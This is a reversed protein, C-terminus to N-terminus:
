TGGTDLVLDLVFLLGAEAMHSVRQSLEEVLERIRWTM